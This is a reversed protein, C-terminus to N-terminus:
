LPKKREDHRRQRVVCLISLIAFILFFLLSIVEAPTVNRRYLEVEERINTIFIVIFILSVLPALYVAAKRSLLVGLSVAITLCAVAFVTLVTTLSPGGLFSDPHIYLMFFIVSMVLLFLGFVMVIITFIKLTLPVKLHPGRGHWYRFERFAVGIIVGIIGAYMFDAILMLPYLTFFISNKGHTNYLVIDRYLESPYKITGVLRWVFLETGSSILERSSLFSAIFFSFYSLAIQIGMFALAWKQWPRLRAWWGFCVIGMSICVLGSLIHGWGQSLPMFISSLIKLCSFGLFILALLLVFFRRVNM